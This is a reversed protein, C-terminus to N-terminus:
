PIPQNVRNQWNQKNLRQSVISRANADMRLNMTGHQYLLEMQRETQIDKHGSTLFTFFM